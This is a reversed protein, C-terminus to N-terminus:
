FETFGQSVRSFIRVGGSSPPPPDASTLVPSPGATAAESPEKADAGTSEAAAPPPWRPPMDGALRSTGQGSVVCWRRERTFLGCGGHRRKKNVCYRDRRFM